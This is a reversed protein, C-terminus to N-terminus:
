QAGKAPSGGSIRQLSISLNDRRHIEDFVNKIQEYVSAQYSIYGGAGFTLERTIKVKGDPTAAAQLNFGGPPGFNTAPPYDAPELRYGPPPTITISDNEQWAYPFMINFKRTSATFKPSDGRRSILPQLILRRGVVQAYGPIKITYSFKLPTETEEVGSIQIDGVEAGPHSALIGDKVAELRKAPNEEILEGRQKAAIHGTFLEQVSGALTGDAALSLNGNFFQASESPASLPSDIFKPEKPDSLLAPMGQETWGIMSPPLLNTSVDFLKWKGDILVAMDINPLFYVDAMAPNFPLDSRDGTLAPRADLGAAAAMSAFLTNMENPTGIGTKLIESATRHRQKPMKRLIEAREAETVQTGFLSRINKRLYGLLALAKEEGTKSQAVAEQAAAKVKDDAKLASKMESYVVKGMKNWYKDPDRKEDQSYFVLAWKKAAAEGPMYPEAKFAEVNTLATSHFGDRELNLASPSCSFPHLGMGYTTYQGSLPKLFYTVSRVPFERQFDLRIYLLRPNHRLELYRYEVIAGPMVGPFAISKAKVKRGGAKVLDRDHIDGDKVEIIRGDPLITRATLYLISTDKDYVIEVKSADEKGKENFVKLRLYHYLGRSLDEGRVEDALHVRWFLAEIGADKDIVPQSMARDQDTIPLWAAQRAFQPQAFVKGSLVALVCIIVPGITQKLMGVTYM